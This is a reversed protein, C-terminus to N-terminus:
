APAAAMVSRMLSGPPEQELRECWHDLRELFRRSSLLDAGFLDAFKQVRVSARTATCSALLRVSLPDRLPGAIRGDAKRDLFALWAAVILVLRDIPGGCHLQERLPELVRIPIKQSGDEAIQGLQHAPRPNSFRRLLAQQYDSLEAATIGKVTPALERAM